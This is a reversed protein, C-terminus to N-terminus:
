RCPRAWRCQSGFCRTLHVGRLTAICCCRPHNEICSGHATGRLGDFNGSALQEKMMNLQGPCHSLFMNIYKKIKDPNGGTFSNLFTLNIAKTM